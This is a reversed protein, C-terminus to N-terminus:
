IFAIHNFYYYYYETDPDHRALANMNALLMCTETNKTETARSNGVM